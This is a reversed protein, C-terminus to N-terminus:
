AKKRIIELEYIWGNKKICDRVSFANYNDSKRCQQSWLGEIRFIHNPCRFGLSHEHIVYESRIPASSRQCSLRMLKHSTHQSVSRLILRRLVAAVEGVHRSQVHEFCQMAPPKLFGRSCCLQEYVILMLTSVFQVVIKQTIVGHLGDARSIRSQLYFRYTHGFRRRIKFSGCPLIDWFITCKM